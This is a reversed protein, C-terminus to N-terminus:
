LRSKLGAIAHLVTAWRIESRGGRFLVSEVAPEEIGPVMWGFAVTGVPKDRTGGDPGAVGTVAVAAQAGSSAVAGAAMEAAVPESVAGFRDLTDHRVGLLRVKAENSYTVFGCDFWASSGAISTLTQAIWGGTCSEATACFLRREVLTEALSRVMTETEQDLGTSM